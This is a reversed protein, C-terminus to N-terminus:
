KFNFRCIHEHMGEFVMGANLGFCTILHIGTKLGFCTILHIGTKLGFCTILHIGTELGFRRLFWVRQPPVYWYFNRGKRIGLAQFLYRM